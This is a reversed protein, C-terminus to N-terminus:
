LGIGAKKKKNIFVIINALSKVRYYEAWLEPSPFKSDLDCLERAIKDLDLYNKAMNPNSKLYEQFKSKCKELDYYDGKISLYDVWNTFKENFTIEPEFPLRDDKHCLEHYEKKSKINKSALIAKAKEFTTIGLDIRRVTRLILEKTLELDYEGLANEKKLKNEDKESKDEKPKKLNMTIVKIKQSITKDELGMQYIVERVKQFDQNKTDTRWENVNLVPLIIKTKKEPDNKNKRCPRLASQVIRIKSAMNEAFVVADLLPFDWGEGLCYVCTIIGFRTEEFKQIAKKQEKSTMKSDYNSYYLEPINFENKDLFLQIYQIIKKSNETDNSYILLRHSHGEAISKLAVYASLFLKKDHKEVIDFEKLKEELEVKPTVITQIEYDCIIGNDIAWKLCRREVIDGFFSADRNCIVINNADLSQIEKLTATLSIQKISDIDLMRIYRKETKEVNVNSSALHHVEDLIKMDFTYEINETAELVKCSSKYTTIVVCKKNTTLFEEISEVQINNAVTLCPVRFFLTKVVNEWQNLLLLNPVGILITDCRLKETIWLSILTKGVGCTLVFIGKDYKLFHEVGSEIIDKQYLRQEYLISGGKKEAANIECLMNQVQKEYYSDNIELTHEIEKDESSKTHEETTDSDSDTNIDMSDLLITRERNIRVLENIEEESLKTYQIKKKILYPEIREIIEKKFFEIGADHKVNLAKFKKQLAREIFDLWSGFVKYVSIFRGRKIEGTSYQIDREPINFTKGLKYVGHEDYSEHQRCYIYGCNSEDM